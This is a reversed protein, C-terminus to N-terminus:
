APEAAPVAAPQKPPPAPIKMPESPGPQTKEAEHNDKAWTEASDENFSKNCCPGCCGALRNGDSGGYAKTNCWPELASFCLLACCGGTAEADNAASM